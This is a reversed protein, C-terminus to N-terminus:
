FNFCFNYARMTEENITKGNQDAWKLYHAFGEEISIGEKTLLEPFEDTLIDKYNPFNTHFLNRGNEISIGSFLSKFLDEFGTDVSKYQNIDNIRNDM